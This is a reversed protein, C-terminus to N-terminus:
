RRQVIASNAMWVSEGKWNVAVVIGAKRSKDLMLYTEDASLNLEARIEEETFYMGPRLWGCNTGKNLAYTKIKEVINQHSKLFEKSDNAFRNEVRELVESICNFLTKRLTSLDSLKYFITTFGAVDFPLKTSSIPIVIKGRAHAYGVEYFVNPNKGSLDAILLDAIEIATVIKDYIHRRDFPLTDARKICVDFQNEFSKIVLDYVDNFRSSFPMLVFVTKRRTEKSDKM